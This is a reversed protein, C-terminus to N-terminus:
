GYRSKKTDNLLRSLHKVYDTDLYMTSTFAKAYLDPHFVLILSILKSKPDTQILKNKLKHLYTKMRVFYFSYQVM